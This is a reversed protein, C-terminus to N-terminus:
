GEGLARIVRRRRQCGWPGQAEEEQQPIGQTRQPKYRQIIQKEELGGRERSATRDCHSSPVKKESFHGQVSSLSASEKSTMHQSRVNQMVIDGFSYEGNPDATPEQGLVLVLVLHLSTGEGRVDAQASTQQSFLVNHTMGVNLLPRMFILM